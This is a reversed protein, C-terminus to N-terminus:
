RSALGSREQWHGRVLDYGKRDPLGALTAVLEHSSKSDYLPAILPQLISATGDYARADSWAELSHSEPIHWHCYASTEDDHLGLHVRLPVKQMAEGFGLDVPATYVPNGGLVVLLDVKGARMDDALERLSALQDSPRAETPETYAVTTGVNGLAENIAHALAHLAPPQAEGALVLSHGRHARLDQVLAAIWAGHPSSPGFADGSAVALGLRAAVARAFPEIQSPKLALRHDALPGTASATSEVVYLRSMHADDGHAKRRAAFDRIDRLNAPGSTVFDADLALIVDAAELRHQVAVAQGFALQAGRRANDAGSADWQHWRAAPMDALLAELQAALTPSTVTETLIRLGQGKLARQAQLVPTLVAVFAGWTRIEGLELLAQSRDPDYLGLIAAQGAADTAGLSAPHDPNGEIKTPRGEHSEVLVGKAHGQDLVATAFFLPRGPVIEEPQRVYPVITEAPQKTCATLGALAMSAGMLRLFDRRGAPDNWESAQEPFERHLFELFGPAEALEELSKWYRRGRSESLRRRMGELKVPIEVSM